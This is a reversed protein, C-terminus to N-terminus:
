IGTSPLSKRLEHRPKNMLKYSKPRRKVVRPEARDPRDGVIHTAIIKFLIRLWSDIDTVQLYGPLFENVTQVTGKFSIQWPKLAAQRATEVMTGRILNYALLHMRVENRVREPKKCRLHEMQLHTKLSRLHLEAQWRRRFLEAIENPSYKSHDWLTTVVIISKSRFGRQHVRIRVERLVLEDPLSDYQEQSMWSPRQPKPWVVLHDDRGLRAGTRFDTKRMQHKRVVSEIGRRQLLAIDFWSSFFRDGLLVDGPELAQSVHNRFLSNEGTQKGKYRTMALELAVGTALSFLVVMRMIPQGCGPQQAAQQPYAQQNEPTDPMTTTTGDVVRVRHGHWLWSEDVTSDIDRATSTLLKHCGTESLQSRATCYTGTEASCAKRGQGVLWAILRGVTPRCSHDPCLVQALFMWVVVPLTYVTGERELDIESAGAFAERIVQEPLLPAFHFSSDRQAKQIRKLLSQFMSLAEM